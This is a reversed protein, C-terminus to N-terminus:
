ERENITTSVHNLINPKYFFMKNEGKLLMTIERLTEFAMQALYNKETYQPSECVFLYDFKNFLVDSLDKTVTLLDDQGVCYSLSDANNVWYAEQIFNRKQFYYGLWNSSQLGDKVKDEFEIDHHHDISIINVPEKKMFLPNLVYWINAHIQSFLINKTDIKPIIEIYFKLLNKFDHVSRVYDIDISLINKTLKIM